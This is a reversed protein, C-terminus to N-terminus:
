NRRRSIQGLIGEKLESIRFMLGVLVIVLVVGTVAGKCGLGIWSQAQPFATRMLYAVTLGAGMAILHRFIVPYFTFLSVHLCHSAYLPADFFHVCNIVLTTLIVAYAGFETFRILVYMSIVNTIGMLITVACPFRLKKTLTYVYYLPNVVSTAVDSLLVIMSARFLFATNQGPLWLKLFDEGCVFFLSIALACFTGTIRMTIRFLEVMEKTKGEAYYLLQRPRFSGSIKMVITYCLTALNKAISIEGLVTANLMLNTILLDLGSNLVNGLNNLSTWIGTAVIEMVADWSCDQRKWRLDQTLKRCMKQSAVLMYASGVATAIGVYWVHPAFFLCLTILLIAQMLYAISQRREVLDLREVIFASTDFATRLITLLYRILVILFLLKVDAALGEPVELLSELRLMMGGGLVLFVVSLMLDATITSSYFRNAREKEGRHYAISIFRGAFANLGVSIIDAYSIFTNALAVYAEVGINNTVYPTILFNMFYNVFVAILSWVMNMLIVSRSKKENEGM